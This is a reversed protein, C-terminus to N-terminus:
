SSSAFVQLLRVGFFYVGLGLISGILASVWVAGLLIRVHQDVADARAIDRATARSLGFDFLGAYGALLWVLTLTGFRADGIKHLLLPVSLLMVAGACVTGALSVISDRKLGM